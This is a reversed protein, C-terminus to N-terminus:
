PLRRAERAVGEIEARSVSRGRVGRSKSKGIVTIFWDM